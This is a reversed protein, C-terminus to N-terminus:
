RGSSASSLSNRQESGVPEGLVKTMEARLRTMGRHLMGRLSGNTLGMQQQITEYDAGVFYRLILPLRYEDPMARLAALLKERTESREMEEEPTPVVLMDQRFKLVEPEPTRKKRSQRRIADIAINQAIRLIWSRFKEASTLQNLTRFATMLTEQLLDEALHADGVELYLRAYVLRSVRRVLGEFAAEDGRQACIVLNTETDTMM